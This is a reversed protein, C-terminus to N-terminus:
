VFSAVQHPAHAQSLASSPVHFAILVPTGSETKIVILDVLATARKLITAAHAVVERRMQKKHCNNGCKGHTTQM